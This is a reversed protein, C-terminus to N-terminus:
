RDVFVAPRLDRHLVDLGLAHQRRHRRRRLLVLLHRFQEGAAGVQAAGGAPHALRQLLRHAPAVDERGGVQAVEEGVRHERRQQGADNKDALPDDAVGDVAAPPQRIECGLDLRHLLGLPHADGVRHVEQRRFFPVLPLVVAEGALADL